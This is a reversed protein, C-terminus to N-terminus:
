ITCLSECYFAITWARGKEGIIRKGLAINKLMQKLEKPM